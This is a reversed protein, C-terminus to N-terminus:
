LLRQGLGCDIEAPDEDALHKLILISFGDVTISDDMQKLTNGFCISSLAKKDYM